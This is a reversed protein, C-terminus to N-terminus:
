LESIDLTGDSCDNELKPNSKMQFELCCIYQMSTSPVLTESNLALTAKSHSIRVGWIGSRVTNATNQTQRPRWKM